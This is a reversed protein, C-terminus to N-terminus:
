YEELKNLLELREKDWKLQDREVQMQLFQLKTNM